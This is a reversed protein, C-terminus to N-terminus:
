VSRGASVRRPAVEPHADHPYFATGSARSQVLKALHEAPNGIHVSTLQTGNEQLPWDPSTFRLSSNDEVWRTDQNILASCYATLVLAAALRIRLGRQPIIRSKGSCVVFIQSYRPSPFHQDVIGSLIDVLEEPRMVGAVRGSWSAQLTSADPAWGALRAEAHRLLADFGKAAQKSNACYEAVEGLAEETTFTESKLLRKGEGVYLRAKWSVIHNARILQVPSRETGSNDLEVRCGRVEKGPVLESFKRDIPFQFKRSRRTFNTQPSIEIPRTRVYAAPVPHQGEMRCIERGILYSLRPPVADGALRYRANLSGGFFQYSLPFTQLAACERVTARRFVEKNGLLGRLVLTERGLQTAVVTRAPRDEHDPFSMKGMYPHSVKARRIARVERENLIVPHFHDTLESSPMSFGYNPDIIDGSKTRDELPDPLVRIIDGLARWPELTENGNRFLDGDNPNASHTREPVPFSGMLFRKRAQPVGFDACDFQARVPIHLSGAKDVGIWRLPIEEPLHLVIRPVNEMIWYRPSREYVVRLYEQVLRRPAYYHLRMSLNYGAVLIDLKVMPSERYGAFHYDLSAYGRSVSKLKDYFDLVVENLPLEYTLMVRM